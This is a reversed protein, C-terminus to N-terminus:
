AARGLAGDAWREGARYEARDCADSCTFHRPLRAEACKCWECAPLGTAAFAERRNAHALTSQLRIGIAGLTAEIPTGQRFSAATKLFKARNM